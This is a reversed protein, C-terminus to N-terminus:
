ELSREIAILSNPTHLEYLASTGHQRYMGEERCCCGSPGYIVSPETHMFDLRNEAKETAVARKLAEVAYGGLRDWVDACLVLRFDQVAHMAKFTEFLLRHWLAEENMKAPTMGTVISYGPPEHVQAGDFDYDRYVVVLESFASSSISTLAAVLFHLTAQDPARPPYKHAITRAKVELTRLSRIQSLDFDSPSWKATFANVLLWV